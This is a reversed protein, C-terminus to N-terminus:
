KMTEPNVLSEIRYVRSVGISEFAKGIPLWVNLDKFPDLQKFLKSTWVNSIINM